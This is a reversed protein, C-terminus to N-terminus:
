PFIVRVTALIDGFDRYFGEIFTPTVLLPVGVHGFQTLWRPRQYLFMLNLAEQHQVKFLCNVLALHTAIPVPRRPDHFLTLRRDGHRYIFLRHLLHHTLLAPPDIGRIGWGLLQRQGLGDQSIAILVDDLPSAAPQFATRQRQRGHIQFAVIMRHAQDLQNGDPKADQGQQFEEQTAPQSLFVTLQGSQVRSIQLTGRGSQGSLTNQLGEFVERQRQNVFRM